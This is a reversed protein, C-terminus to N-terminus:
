KSRTPETLGILMPYHEKSLRLGRDSLAGAEADKLVASTLTDATIAAIPYKQNFADMEELAQDSLKTNGNRLGRKFREIIANKAYDIKSSQAATKANIDQYAALDNPTFGLAQMVINYASIEERSMITDGKMTKAGEDYYRKAILPKKMINPLLDEIGREFEGMNLKQIGSAAQVALGATPGLANIMWEKVWDTPNNTNKVDRMWMSIVGLEMRSAFDLNTYHSVPGRALVDGATTGFTRALWNKFWFDYDEGDLPDDEKGFIARRLINVMGVIPGYGWVGTTGAFMATMGMTGFFRQAAAKQIEPTEGKFMAKLNRLMYATTYYAFQKFQLIVRPADGRFWKGKNFQSYDNMSDDLIRAAEAVAEEHSMGKDRALDYSALGVVERNIRETGHFLAGLGNVIKQTGGTYAHSPSNARGTIDFALTLDLKNMEFLDSFARKQDGTLNGDLGMSPMRMNGEADRKVELSKAVQAMYKGLTKSSKGWGFKSGMVPLGFVPVGMLNTIASAPSTMYYVFSVQSLGNSISTMYTPSPPSLADDVRWRLSDAYTKLKSREPDGELVDVARELARRMQPGYTTKSLQIASQVGFKSFNRLADSSFGATKKRHVFRRRMSNTPMTTLYAQYIQDELEALNGLKEQPISRVNNLLKKLMQGEQTDISTATDKYSDFKEFMHEINATPAVARMERKRKELFFNRELASEFMYYEQNKSKAPGVRLAFQGHRMLPFYPKIKKADEFDKRITDMVVHRREEIEKIKAEIEAKVKPDSTKALDKKYENIAGDFRAKINSDLASFMKDALHMYHDRVEVYLEAGIGNGEKKLREYMENITASRKDTTPDIEYITSLHMLRGLTRSLEPHQVQWNAWKQAIDGTLKMEHMRAATMKNANRQVDELSSKFESEPLLDIMHNTALADLVPKRMQDNVSEVLTSVTSKWDNWDKNKIITGILSFEEGSDRTNRMRNESAKIKKSPAVAPAGVHAEYALKMETSLKSRLLQDNAVMFDMFASKHEPGIRLINRLADVFKSFYSKQDKGHLRVMVDHLAPETIGYATFEKLDEFIGAEDRWFRLRPDAAPDNAIIHDVAAHTRVMLQMLDDYAKYLAPPVARGEAIALQIAGIKELTAAHFAEHLVTRFSTGHNADAFGTGRLYITKDQRDALGNADTFFARASEPMAAEQAANDIVELKYGKAWGMIRNALLREFANGHKVIHRLADVLTKIKGSQIAADVKGSTLKSKAKSFRTKADRKLKYKKDALAMQAPTVNDSDLIADAQSRVASDHHDQSMAYLKDVVSQKQAEKQRVMERADSDSAAEGLQDETVSSALVKEADGIFATDKKLQEKETKDLAKNKDREEQKAKKEEETLTPRGRGRKAPETKPAETVAETVPTESQEAVKNAEAVVGSDAVPPTTTEAPTEAKAETVQETSTTPTTVAPTETKVEAPTEAKTEAPKNAEQNNAEQDAKAIQAAEELVSPQTVAPAVRGKGVVPEGAPLGSTGLGAPEAGTVGEPSVNEGTPESSPVSVGAAEEVAQASGAPEPRGVPQEVPPVNVVEGEADEAPIGLEKEIAAKERNLDSRNVVEAKKAGKYEKTGSYLTEGGKIAAGSAGAAIFAETYEDIAKDDLLPLGAQWREAAQELVETPAEAIFGKGAGKATAAGIAKAAGLGSIEGAARRAALEKMVEKAATKEATGGLGATWRDIFYGVPATAAATGAAKWPELEKASQKELAQRQMFNGLQQIGYTGVGALTGTIPALPGSVAGVASGVAFPAAMQPASELIKETVYGPVEKVAAGLGKRRYVDAIGKATLSQIEEKDQEAQDAKIAQMKRQAEADSGTVASGFLGLGSAVDSYSGLGRKIGEITREGFGVDEAAKHLLEPRDAVIRAKAEEPTIDDPINRVLTGDPLRISYTM